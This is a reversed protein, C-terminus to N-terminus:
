QGLQEDIREIIDALVARVAEMESGSDELLAAVDFCVTKGQREKGENDTWPLRCVSLKCAETYYQLVNKGATIITPTENEWYKTM